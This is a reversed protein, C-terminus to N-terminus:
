KPTATSDLWSKSKVIPVKAAKPFSPLDLTCGPDAANSCGGHEAKSSHSRRISPPRHRVLLTRDSRTVRVSAVMLDHHPGLHASLHVIAVHIAHGNAPALAPSPRLAPSTPDRAGCCWRPLLSRQPVLSVVHVGFGDSSERSRATLASERATLGSESYIFM